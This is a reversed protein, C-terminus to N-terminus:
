RQTPAGGPQRLHVSDDRFTVYYFNRDQSNLIGTDTYTRATTSDITTFPGAVSTSRHVYYQDIGDPFQWNLIVDNGSSSVVLVPGVLVSDLVAISWRGADDQGRFGFTYYGVPQNTFVHVVDENNEDFVGDVPLPISIGNGVGPDAGFWCEAAVVTRQEGIVLPSTVVVFSRAVQSTRSLDDAGRFDITHLGISLANTAIIANVNIFQFDPEDLQIWSGGDVRYEGFTALRSQGSFDNSITGFFADTVVGTRGLDDTGRVHLRHLGNTLGLTPLIDSWNVSAADAPNVNTYAAGDISYDLNSIVRSQGASSSITGFFADTVQSVRGLDDTGRVRMRHLGESLGLTSVVDMWNVNAADAVDYPTFAGNDIQYEVTTILRVQAHAALAFVLGLLSLLVRQKM